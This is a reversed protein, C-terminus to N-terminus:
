RALHEEDGNARESSSLLFPSALSSLPVTRGWRRGALPRCAVLLMDPSPRYERWSSRPGQPTVNSM